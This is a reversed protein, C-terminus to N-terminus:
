AAVPQCTGSANSGEAMVRMAAVITPKAASAPARGALGAARRSTGRALVTEAEAVAATRQEPTKAGTKAAEADADAKAANELSLKAYVKDAPTGAAVAARAAELQEDIVTAFRELPVAGAIRIGNMVSTPTGTVGATKAAAIDAEVKSSHASAELAARLSAADVGSQAGWVQFNDTTLSSQNEFALQSWKWFADSGGLAFVADGAIAAPKANAHMSLPQNKWVIRLKDAGYRQKLADLTSQARRTFPCQFDGFFVLTVPAARSGWTPDKASVPVSAADDGPLAAPAKSGAATAGQTQALADQASKLETEATTVEKEQEELARVLPKDIGADIATPVTGVAAVMLTLGFGFRLWETTGELFWGKSPQERAGLLSTVRVLSEGFYRIPISWGRGFGRFFQAQNPRALAAGIGLYAGLGVIFVVALWGPSLTQLKTIRFLEEFPGM